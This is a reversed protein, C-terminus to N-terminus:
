KDRSKVEETVKEEERARQKFTLVSKRHSLVYKYEPRQRRSADEYEEQRKIQSARFYNDKGWMM